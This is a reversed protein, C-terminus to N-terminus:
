CAPAALLLCGAFSSSQSRTNQVALAGLVGLPIPQLSLAPDHLTSAKPTTAPNIPM